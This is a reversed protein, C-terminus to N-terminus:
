IFEEFAAAGSPGDNTHLVGIGHENVLERRYGIASSPYRNGRSGNGLQIKSDEVRGDNMSIGHSRLM